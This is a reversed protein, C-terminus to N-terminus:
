YIQSNTEPPAWVGLKTSAFVQRWLFDLVQDLRGLLGPMAMPVRGGDQNGESMSEPRRLQTIQAPILYVEVAGVEVDSPNLVARRARM